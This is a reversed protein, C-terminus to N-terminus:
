DPVIIFARSKEYLTEESGQRSNNFLRGVVMQDKGFNIVIPSVLILQTANSHLTYGDRYIEPEFKSKREGLLNNLDTYHVLSFHTSKYSM